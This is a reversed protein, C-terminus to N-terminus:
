LIKEERFSAEIANAREMFIIASDKDISKSVTCFLFLTWTVFYACGNKKFCVCFLHFLTLAVIYNKTQILLGFLKIIFLFVFFPLYSFPFMEDESFTLINEPQQNHPGEM